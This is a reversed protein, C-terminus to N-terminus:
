NMTNLLKALIKYLEDHKQETDHKLQEKVTEKKPEMDQSSTTGKLTQLLQELLNISKRKWSETSVSVQEQEDVNQESNIIDSDDEEFFELVDDPINTGDIPIEEGNDNQQNTKSDGMMSIASELEQLLAEDQHAAVNGKCNFTVAESTGARCSELGTYVGSNPKGLDKGTIIAKFSSGSRRATLLPNPQVMCRQQDVARLPFVAVKVRRNSTPCIIPLCANTDGGKFQNRFLRLSGKTGSRTIFKITRTRPTVKLQLYCRDDETQDRWARLNVSPLQSCSSRKQDARFANPQVMDINDANDCIVRSLSASDIASRQQANFLALTSDSNEYYFRDGDRVSRFTKAFICAFTAGVLGGSVKQEALGGVWLDVTELTGYTQLLRVLTLDNEFESSINCERQAWRKWTLYPPLGHDRGRQINLSALDLGVSTSTQFLHNTLIDNLFEDVKLSPKTLLGRLIPDTGGSKEYQSPDFFADVLNLPGITAPNYNEDLRDFFPNIQSHGFRFAATAFANPIRPDVEPNYQTYPRLLSIADGLVIPLYDKYTIKQIEAGVISRAVQFIKDTGWKPNLQRLSQAIRNHERVWITHMVILASHENVRVDGALFCPGGMCLVMNGTAAPLSPGGNATVLLCYVSAHNYQCNLQKNNNYSLFFCAIM